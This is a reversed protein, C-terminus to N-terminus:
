LTSHIDLVRREKGGRWLFTCVVPAAAAATAAAAKKQQEAAVPSKADGSKPSKASSKKDQKKFSPQKVAHFPFKFDRSDRAAIQLVISSCM